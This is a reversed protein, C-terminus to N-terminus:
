FFIAVNAAINGQAVGPGLLDGLSDYSADQTANILYRASIGFEVNQYRYKVEPGGSVLRYRGPDYSFAGGNVRYYDGLLIEFFGGFRFGGLVFAPHTSVGVVSGYEYQYNVNGIMQSSTGSGLYSLFNEISFYQLDKKISIGIQYTDRGYQSEKLEQNSLMNLGAVAWLGVDFGRHSWIQLRASLQLPGMLTSQPRNILSFEMGLGLPQDGISFPYLDTRVIHMSDVPFTTGQNPQRYSRFEYGFLSPNKVRATDPIEPGTPTDAASPATQYASPVMKATTNKISDFNAGPTTIALTIASVVNEDERVEAPLSRHLGEHVQLAVLQDEDLKLAVPFFRTVAHPEAFTRAYVRGKMDAHFSGQDTAEIAQSDKKTLYMQTDQVEPVLMGLGPVGPVNLSKLLEVAKQRSELIKGSTIETSGELDTGEDGNGIRTTAALTSMTFLVLGMVMIGYVLKKM